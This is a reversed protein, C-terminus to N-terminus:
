PYILFQLDYQTTACCSCNGSGSIQFPGFRVDLPSCSYTVGPSSTVIVGCTSSGGQVTIAWKTADGLYGCHLTITYTIGCITETGVWDGTMSDYTLTTIQGNYDPCGSFFRKWEAKLTTPVSSCCNTTVFPTVKNKRIAFAFVIAAITAIAMVVVLGMIITGRRSMRSMECRWCHFSSKVGSVRRAYMGGNVVQSAIPMVHLHQM